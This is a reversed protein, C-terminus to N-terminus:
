AREWMSCSRSKTRQGWSSTNKLFNGENQGIGMGGLAVKNMFSSGRSEPLYGFHRELPVGSPASGVHHHSLALFSGQRSSYTFGQGQGNSTFSHGMPLTPWASTQPKSYSIPSGWLFQAGTLTGVTSSSSTPPGFSSLNGSKPSINPMMVSHEPFSRSHQFPVGHNSNSSSFVQDARNIRSQDKGIPSIKLSNSMLSPVTSALGPM